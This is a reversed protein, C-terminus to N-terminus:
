YVLMFLKERMEAFMKVEVRILSDRYENLMKSFTQVGIKGQRSQVYEETENIDDNVLSSTSTTNDTNGNMENSNTSKNNENNEQISKAYQIVGEGDNATISLRSDPNDSDLQRDFNDQTTTGDNTQNMTTKNTGDSKANQSKNTDIKKTYTNEMKSNILPDFKLLESEFLKNFYPMNISLWNELKFKFLEETEFGIETMYFERIFHTELVKRYTEDFIPYDFDFLKTRGREIRERTSLSDEKQSWSDIYTRLQMTYSSM